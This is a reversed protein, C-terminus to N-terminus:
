EPRPSEPRAPQPPTNVKRPDFRPGLLIEWKALQAKSLVKTVERVARDQIQDTKARMGEFQKRAAQERAARPKPDDKPPTAAPGPKAEPPPPKTADNAAPGDAPRNARMAMMTGIWTTMRMTQAQALIQRIAQEDEEFLGLAEVIEPRTLASIGEMQLAIQDLRKRQAPKLVKLIGADNERALAGFQGIMSTFQGVRTAIPVPDGAKFPDDGAKARMSKGLDEGKKRMRDQLERVSRKQDDTLKLEDQVPPMMILAAKAFGFEGIASGTSGWGGLRTFKSPDGFIGVAPAGSPAAPEAKPADAPSPKTAPETPPTAAVGRRESLRRPASKPAAGDTDPGPGTQAFAPAALLLPLIFAPLRRGARAPAADDAIM